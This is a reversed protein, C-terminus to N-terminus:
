GFEIKGQVVQGLVTTGAGPRLCVTPRRPGGRVQAVACEAEGPPRM